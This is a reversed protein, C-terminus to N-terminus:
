CVQPILLFLGADPCIQDLLSLAPDGMHSVEGLVDLVGQQLFYPIEVFCNSFLVSLNPEQQIGIQPLDSFVLLGLVVQLSMDLPELILDEYDLSFALDFKEVCDVAQFSLILLVNRFEVTVEVVDTSPM